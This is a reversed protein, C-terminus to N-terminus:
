LLELTNRSAFLLLCSNQSSIVIIISIKTSKIDIIMTSEKLSKDTVARSVAQTEIEASIVRMGAMELASVVEELLVSPYASVVVKEDNPIVRYDFSVSEADIPINEDIRSRVIDRIDDDSMNSLDRINTQFFYAKKESLSINVVKIKFKESFKRAEIIFFTITVPTDGRFL